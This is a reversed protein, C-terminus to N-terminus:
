MGPSIDTVKGNKDITILFHHGIIDSALLVRWGTDTQSARYYKIGSAWTENTTMLAQRAIEIAKDADLVVVQNTAPLTVHNTPSLTTELSDGVKKSCGVVVAVFIVSVLFRM